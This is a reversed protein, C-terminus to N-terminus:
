PLMEPRFRERRSIIDGAVMFEGNGRYHLTQPNDIDSALARVIEFIFFHYSDVLADDYLACEFHAVCQDILPAAVKQAPSTTLGFAAFKDTDRGSSNGIDVVTDTLDTTPLNIVCQRSKKILQHSYNGASIMLGVLAPSFELITQWGLTMVNREGRYQSTVLVIPGPELYRRAQECPFEKKVKNM